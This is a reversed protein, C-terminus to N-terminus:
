PLSAASPAPPLPASHALQSLAVAADLEPGSNTVSSWGTEASLGPAPAALAAGVSGPGRPGCGSMSGPWRPPAPSAQAQAGSDVAASILFFNSAKFDGYITVLIHSAAYFLANSTHTSFLFNEQAFCLM